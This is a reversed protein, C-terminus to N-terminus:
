KLLKKFIMMSVYSNGGATNVDRKFRCATVIDNFWNLIGSTGNVSIGCVAFKADVIACGPIVSDILKELLLLCMRALM